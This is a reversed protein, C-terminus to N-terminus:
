FCDGNLCSVAGQILALVVGMGLVYAGSIVGRKALSWNRQLSIVVVGAIVCASLLAIWFAASPFFSPFRRSVGYAMQALLVFAVPVAALAIALITRTDRHMEFAM